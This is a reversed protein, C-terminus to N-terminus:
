ISILFMLNTYVSDVAPCAHKLHPHDILQPYPRAATGKKPAGAPLKGVMEAADSATASGSYHTSVTHRPTVFWADSKGPIAYTGGPTREVLRVNLWPSDSGSSPVTPRM